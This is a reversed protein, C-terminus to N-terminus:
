YDLGTNIKNITWFDHWTNVNNMEEFKHLSVLGLFL